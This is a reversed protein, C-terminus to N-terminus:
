PDPVSVKDPTLEPLPANVTFRPVTTNLPTDPPLARVPLPTDNTAPPVKRKSSEPPTFAEPRNPDPVAMVLEPPNNSNTPLLVAIVTPLRAALVVEVNIFIVPVPVLLKVKAPSVTGFVPDEKSKLATVDKPVDFLTNSLPVPPNVNEFPINALPTTPLSKAAYSTTFPNVGNVPYEVAANSLKVVTSVPLKLPADLKDYERVTFANFNLLEVTLPVPFVSDTAPPPNNAVPPAFVNFRPASYECLTPNYACTTEPDENSTFAGSIV